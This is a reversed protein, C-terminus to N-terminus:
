VSYSDGCLKILYPEPSLFSIHAGVYRRTKMEINGCDKKVYLYFFWTKPSQIAFKFSTKCHWSPILQSQLSHFISRPELLTIRFIVLFLEPRDFSVMFIEKITSQFLFALGAVTYFLSDLCVNCLCWTFNKLTQKIIIKPELGLCHSGIFLYFNWLLPSFIQFTKQLGIEM